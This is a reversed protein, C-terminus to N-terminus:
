IATVLRWFRRQLAGTGAGQLSRGPRLGYTHDFHQDSVRQRNLDTWTKYDEDIRAYMVRYDAPPESPANWSVRLTGPQNSTLQVNTVDRSIAVPVPTNTPPVPTNTPPVPTNTPPVPTNTATPMPTDTTAPTDTPLPTNSPPVPTNTPLPTNTPPDLVQQQQQIQHDQSVTSDVVLAEQQDTWPGSSGNYRARVQVKYSVGQDLGTLTISTETPFANGSPDSWAKYSENIPAYMVRYDNPTQSPANWSVTLQGALNSALQVNTVARSDAVQVPTNTPPISTNTATPSSTITQSPTESPAVLM